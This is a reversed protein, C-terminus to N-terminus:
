PHIIILTNIPVLPFIEDIEKNTVAICGDTWDRLRHLKGWKAYKSGLGHIKIEGGTRGQAKDCANPYNIGLNKHYNTEPEIRKDNIFYLGEPTKEDGEKEKAGKPSAGLSIKYKSVITGKYLLLKRESKFIVLSDVKQAFLSTNAEVLIITALLIHTQIKM